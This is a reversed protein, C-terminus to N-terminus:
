EFVFGAGATFAFSRTVQDRGAVVFARDLLRRAQNERPGTGGETASAAPLAPLSILDRTVAVTPAAPLALRWRVTTRLGPLLGFMLLALGFTRALTAM